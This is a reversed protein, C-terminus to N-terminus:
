GPMILTPKLTVDHLDHNSLSRYRNSHKNETVRCGACHEGLDGDGDGEVADRHVGDGGLNDRVVAHHINGLGSHRSRTQVTAEGRSRVGEKDGGLILVALPNNLILMRGVRFRRRRRM